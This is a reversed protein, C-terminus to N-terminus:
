NPPATSATVLGARLPVPPVALAEAFGAALDAADPVLGLALVAPVFAVVLAVALVAALGATLDLPLAPLLVADFAAGRAAFDVPERLSSPTPEAAPPVAIALPLALAPLFLELGAEGELAVFADLDAVLALLDALPPLDADWCPLRGALVAPAAGTFSTGAVAGFPEVKGRERAIGRLPTPAFPPAGSGFRAM